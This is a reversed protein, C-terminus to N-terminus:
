GNASVTFTYTVTIPSETPNVLTENIKQGSTFTEGGAYTGGTAGNYNVSSLTIVANTTASTLTISNALGECITATTNNIAFIPDPNVTVTTQQTTPNSCGNAAVSFTYTVILPTNGPNSYSETITQGDTFTEGGVFNSTSTTGNYNVSILTIVASATPSNLTINAGVGECVAPTTNTITFVPPAPNITVTTSVPTLDSCGNASVTFTYTVTIPSETPNVLTENIKQGSTFTEGGAYTGGTAGNYNVSSLTIVANTTASTLTINNALGECITATTNNITFIPDPNVTVTFSRINSTCGNKTATVNITAVIPSNSSNTSIFSPIELPM